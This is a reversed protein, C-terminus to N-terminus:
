QIKKCVLECKVATGKYIQVALITRSTQLCIKKFKKITKTQRGISSPLDAHM